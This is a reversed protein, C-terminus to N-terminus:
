HFTDTERLAFPAIEALFAEGDETVMEYSGHM